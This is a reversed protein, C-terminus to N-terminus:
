APPLPTPHPPDLNVAALNGLRAGPLPDARVKRSRLEVLEMASDDQSRRAGERDARQQRRADLKKRVRRRDLAAVPERKVVVRGLCPGRRPEEVSLDELCA